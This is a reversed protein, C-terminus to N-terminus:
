ISQQIVNSYAGQVGDSDVTAIAFYYTGSALDLLQAMTNSAGEVVLQNSLNNEDNGYVILYGNIEWLPLDSGDERAQPIDWTLEISSTVQVVTVNLSAADSVISNSVIVSYNGADSSTVSNLSLSASNEGDIIEGNKLWQYTITGDGTVQVSFSASANEDVTIAQPQSTIAVPEPLATVTLAVANSLVSGQSNTVQVRYSAADSMSVSAINLSASTAGNITQSDKLWQYTIEGDGTVQVSFSASANEDVTIAQPQSIIAVAEPLATVTLAVANSLVSGQSNTVQVRYSAADSMSVSAINLSGSTAGNITQEDKLWQYSIAGDGTVQVSFSASANEDVTIAQPQSIIAVAEPLATVTLAVANSLVSGQSNTVRVRYAAADSMSVSAINLSASTAGNITQSDKLWQYIITGDGTVQVSFSASANEDVTIAQPQSTIAVSEPLATVTLAVANSLVSGQSNTVQVRYTAADSMSVSAINLSASTAGNITQSDKLWQYTITGDGTVQVSFSASANEDVTIAQPQSTIAVPEPLATVTLAVASSLVSGQSNTVRVRYTAADSMSVSAINLSASTAGNITQSDKLWQYTITGDGTVQVSFSASANEDVTIAQPQSTILVPDITPIVIIPTNVTLLAALSIQSGASNSVVVDYLAADSESVNTLVLSNATAGDINQEGKRWQFSLTGGGSASITFIANEGADITLAQPHSSIQLSTVEVPPQEEGETPTQSDVASTNNLAAEEGVGAGCASLFISMVLVFVLKISSNAKVADFFNVILMSM